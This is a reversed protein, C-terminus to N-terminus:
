LKQVAPDKRSRAAEAPKKLEGNLLNKSALGISEFLIHNTDFYIIAAGRIMRRNVRNHACFRSAKPNLELLIVFGIALHIRHPNTVPKSAIGRYKMPLLNLNVM